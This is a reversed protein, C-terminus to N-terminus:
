QFLIIEFADFQRNEETINVPKLFNIRISDGISFNDLSLPKGSSDVLKTTSNIVIACLYGLSNENKNKNNNLNVEVSCNIILKNENMTEIITDLTMVSNNTVCGKMILCTSLMIIFLSIKNM